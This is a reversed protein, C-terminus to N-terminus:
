IREKSIVIESSCSCIEQECMIPDLKVKTLKNSFDHDKINLQDDFLKQGCSGTIKGDAHIFVRDVGLNCQYGKFRNANQFIIKKYNYDEVTGDELYIKPLKAVPPLVPLSLRKRLSMMYEEQEKSYVTQGEILVPAASLFWGKSNKYLYDYCQISKQWNSPDILVFVYLNSKKQTHIFDAVSIIHDLNAYENHVSITVEDFVEYSNYWYTLTRSGNTSIRTIVNAQKKIELIFDKLDPWLTPEGGTIKIDFNKKGKNTKYFNMLEIMNDLIKKYDPWRHTGDNSGPFCYHCKYNCVNGFVFDIELLDSPTNEIKIIKM